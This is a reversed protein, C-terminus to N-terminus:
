GDYTYTQIVNTKGELSATVTIQDGANLSSVNATDGASPDDPLDSSVTANTASVTLDDADEISVIQVDVQGNSADEDFTVGASPNAELNDSLGTVFSGIVAALIVTVAVMLIVGVVPSVGSELSNKDFM